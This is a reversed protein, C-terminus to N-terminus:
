KVYSITFDESASVTYACNLYSNYQLTVPPSPLTAIQKIKYDRTVEMLADSTTFLYGNSLTDILFVPKNYSMPVTEGKSTIMLLSQNNFVPDTSVILAGDDNSAYQLSSPTAFSYHCLELGSEINYCAIDSTGILIITHDFRLIDYYFTDHLVIEGVIENEAYSIITSELFPGADYFCLISFNNSRNEYAAGLLFADNPLAIPQIVDNSYLNLSYSSVGDYTTLLLYDKLSAVNVFSHQQDTLTHVILPSHDDMVKFISHHDVILYDNCTELSEFTSFDEPLNDIIIPQNKKDYRTITDNITLYGSSLPIFTTDPSYSIAARKSSIMTPLTLSGTSLYMSSGIILIMLVFIILIFRFRIRRKKM